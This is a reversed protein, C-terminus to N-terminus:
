NTRRSMKKFYKGTRKDLYNRLPNEYIIHNNITNPNHYNDYATVWRLNSAANNTKDGDIHDVQPLNDPNPIFLTAVLRHVLWDCNKNNIRLCVKYYNHNHLRPKLVRENRGKVSIITGDEYVKYDGIAKFNM